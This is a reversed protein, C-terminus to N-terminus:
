RNNNEDDNNSSQDNTNEQEITETQTEEQVPQETEPQPEPESYTEEQAPQEEKPEPTSEQSQSRAIDAASQEPERRMFFYIGGAIVAIAGLIYLIINLMSIGKDENAEASEEVVPTIEEEEEPKAEQEQTQETNVEEKPEDQQPEPEPEKVPEPVPEPEKAPEPVPDPKAEVVVPTTVETQPAEVVDNSDKSKPDIIGTTTLVAGIIIVAFFEM